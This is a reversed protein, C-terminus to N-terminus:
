TVPSTTPSPCHFPRKTLSPKQLLAAVEAEAKKALSELEGKVFKEFSVLRLKAEEGLSQQCLVCRADGGTFPFEKELYAVEGSYARAQEWLLKWSELGVGDLPAEDFVKEADESAAKRKATATAKATLLTALIADTLGDRIAILETSFRELAAKRTRLQKAQEAPNKELLRAHLSELEEKLAPSWDCWQAVDAASTQANLQAYWTAAPSAALEVPMVPKKSPLAAIETQLVGDVATCAEVLRQFIGLLWPEFTVENESNVYVQGCESDYIELVALEAQLGDSPQWAIEKATGNLVYSIKCSQAASGQFVNGLLKRRNKSGCVSNLIRIYGSKGVGTGGYVVTLPEQNFALPSRPNLAEIGKVESIGSLQLSVGASKQAFASEPLAALKQTTKPAAAQQQCIAALEALDAEVLNEKTLLRRAAEQIWFPREQFWNVLNATDLPM